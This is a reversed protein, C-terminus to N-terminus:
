DKESVHSVKSINRTQNWVVAIFYIDWCLSDYASEQAYLLQTYVIICHILQM